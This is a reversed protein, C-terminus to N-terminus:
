SKSGPFKSNEYKKYKKFQNQIASVSNISSAKIRRPAHALKAGKGRKEM